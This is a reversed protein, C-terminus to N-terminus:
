IWRLLSKEKVVLPVREGNITLETKYEEGLREVFTEEGKCTPCEEGGIIKDQWGNQPSGEIIKEINIKGKGKCEKCDVQYSDCWINHNTVSKRVHAVADEYSGKQSYCSGWMGGSSVKSTRGDINIHWEDERKEITVNAKTVHVKFEDM